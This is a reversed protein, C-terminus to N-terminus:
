IRVGPDLLDRARIILRPMADGLEAKDEIQDLAAIERVFKVLADYSAAAPRNDTVAIWGYADVSGDPALIVAPMDETNHYRIDAM